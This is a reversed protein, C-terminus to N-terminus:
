IAYHLATRGQEIDQVNCDIELCQLHISLERNATIACIHLATRGLPDRSNIDVREEYLKNITEE